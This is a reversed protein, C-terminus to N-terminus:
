CFTSPAIHFESVDESDKKAHAATGFKSISEMGPDKELARGGAGLAALPTAALYPHPTTTSYRLHEITTPEPFSALRRRRCSRALTVSKLKGDGWIAVIGVGEKGRHQLKQLGLYCLSMADPDGMVEVLGCEECPHDDFGDDEENGRGYFPTVRNPLLPGVSLLLRSGSSGSGHYLLLLPLSSPKSSYRLQQQKQHHEREIRRHHRPPPPPTINIRYRGNTLSSLLPMLSQTLCHIPERELTLDLPM